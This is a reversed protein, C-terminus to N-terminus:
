NGVHIYPGEFYDLMDEYDDGLATSLREFGNIVSNTALFAFVAIKHVNHAFNPDTQYQNQHELEYISLFM